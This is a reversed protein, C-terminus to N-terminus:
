KRASRGGWRPRGQCGASIPPSIPGIEESAERLQRGPYSRFESRAFAIELYWPVTASFAKQLVLAPRGPARQHPTHDLAPAPLQHKTFSAALLILISLAKTVCARTDTQRIIAYSEQELLPFPEMSDRRALRRRGRRLHCCRRYFPPCPCFIGRLAQPELLFPGSPFPNVWCQQCPGYGLHLLRAASLNPTPTLSAIGAPLRRDLRYGDAQDAVVRLHLAICDQVGRVGHALFGTKPVM